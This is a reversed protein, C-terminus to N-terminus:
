FISEILIIKLLGQNFAMFKVNKESCCIELLPCHYLTDIISCLNNLESFKELRGM